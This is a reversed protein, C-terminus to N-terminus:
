QKKPRGAKNKAQRREEVSASDIQWDRGFKEARLFGLGILKIVRRRSIGLIAAAKATTMKM